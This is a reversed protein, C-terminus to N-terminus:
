MADMREGVPAVGRRHVRVGFSARKQLVQPGPEGAGGGMGGAWEARDLRGDIVPPTTARAMQVSKQGPDAPLATPVAAPQAGIDQTAALAACGVIILTAQASRTKTAVRPAATLLLREIRLLFAVLTTM